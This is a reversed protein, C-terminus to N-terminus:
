DENLIKDKKLLPRSFFPSHRAMAAFLAHCQLLTLASVYTPYVKYQKAAYGAPQTIRRLKAAFYM